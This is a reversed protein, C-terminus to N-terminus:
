SLRYLMLSKIEPDHTRAGRQATIRKGFWSLKSSCNFKVWCKHQHDSSQIQQTPFTVVGWMSTLYAYNCSRRTTLVRHQPRLLGPEFEPWLVLVKTNAGVQWNLFKRIFCGNSWSNIIRSLRTTLIEAQWTSPGPEIGPRPSIKSKNSQGTIIEM